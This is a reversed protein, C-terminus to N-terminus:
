TTFFTWLKKRISVDVDADAPDDEEDELGDGGEGSESGYGDGDFESEEPGNVEEARHVRRDGQEHLEEIKEASREGVEEHSDELPGEREIRVSKQSSLEEHVEMSGEKKQLVSMTEDKECAVGSPADTVKVDSAVKELSGHGKRVKNEPFGASRTHDRQVGTTQAPLAQVAALTGAVTSRRLNYRKEGPTQMGPAVTQRKKRRGGTTVSDSHAESDAVDQGSMTMQSANTYPRKKGINMTHSDGQSGQNTQTPDRAAANPQGDKNPESTEGLFVKASEIVQKVSRTSKLRSKKAPKRRSYKQKLPDSGEVNEPSTSLVESVGQVKEIDSQENVSPSPEGEMERASYDSQIRHIDLSPEAKDSQMSAERTHRDDQEQTAHHEAKKGPSINFIRSTCKRFWSMRGGSGPSIESTIMVSSDPGSVMREGLCGEAVMPLLNTGTDEIESLMPLNSLILEGCNRCSKHEEVATLFRGKEKIFAERQNKLNTSLIQLESIDVQIELRDREVDQRSVSIELKEREICQRELRMEVMERQAQERLFDIHKLAREKEEEFEKEKAELRKEMDEQRRQMDAELEHSQLEFKRLMNDCDKRAKELMESREHQMTSEFASRELRLAEEERQISEKKELTERTLRENEDRKWKELRQKEGNVQILEKEIDARKEDLADWEREFNDREQKLNEKEQELSERECNYSSIEEKLKLQLASLECREEETVKINEQEKSLRLYEEEAATREKELNAKHDLLVQKEAEVQKKETGLAKEEAKVSKEREKLAKLKLEYDKEKDKLKESKNELSQERKAFKMDQHNIEDNKQELAVLKSKLEEEISKRKQDMELEFEHRKSDLVANHEDVLKQIEMRERANLKEELTLLERRKIDLSRELVTIEKEKISLAPIRISIDAEQEKLELGTTEIKKKEEELYKEKQDVAREKENAMDERQKLLREDELLRYQGEQLNLKWDQLDERQKALATEHAEQESHFSLQERRLVNERTELEQLRREVEFSKRSAEAMKADAAHLKAEVELSKEEINTVLAHADALKRESTYNVDASQTHIEHLAKELDAVCQNEVGLAKRLNEERNEVETIAILHATQERKLIEESEALVQRLEEYKSTWEKKEILLLGMNYQYEYLEINLKSLKEVLAERDKKELAAEDLLGEERFRQWVEMNGGDGDGGKEGLSILPPPGEVVGVISKGKRNASVLGVGVNRQGESRPSISWGPFGKRQPTFMM